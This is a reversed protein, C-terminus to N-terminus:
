VGPGPVFGHGCLGVAVEAAHPGAVAAAPPHSMPAQLHSGLQGDAQLLLPGQIGQAPRDGGGASHDAGLACSPM